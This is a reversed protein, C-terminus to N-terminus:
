RSGEGAVGEPHAFRIEDAVAPREGPTVDVVVRDGERLASREAPDGEVDRFRTEDTMEIAVAKGDRTEVVLRSREVTKATGMVHRADGHAVATSPSGGVAVLLLMALATGTRNRQM